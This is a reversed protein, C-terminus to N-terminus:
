THRADWAQNADEFEYHQKEKQAIQSSHTSLDENIRGYTTGAEKMDQCEQSGKFTEEFERKIEKDVHEMMSKFNRRTGPRANVVVNVMRDNWNRFSSKDNSLM